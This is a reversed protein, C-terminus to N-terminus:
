GLACFESFNRKGQSEEPALRKHLKDQPQPRVADVQIKGHGM